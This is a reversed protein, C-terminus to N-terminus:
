SLWVTEKELKIDLSTKGDKTKYIVIEDKNPETIKM